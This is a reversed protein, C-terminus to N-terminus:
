EGTIVDLRPSEVDVCGLKMFVLMTLAVATGSTCNWAALTRAKPKFKGIVFGSTLVGISAFVISVTGLDIIVTLIKERRWWFREGIYPKGTVFSAVSANQRYQTEIYKPM